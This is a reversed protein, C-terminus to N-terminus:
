KSNRISDRIKYLIHNDNYAADALQSILFGITYYLELKPQDKYKSHALGCVSTQIYERLQEKTM